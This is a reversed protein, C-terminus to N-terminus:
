RNIEPSTLPFTKDGRKTEVRFSAFQRGDLARLIRERLSDLDLPAREVFSFNAVGFVTQIRAGIEGQNAEGDFSLLIRGPLNRAEGLGLGHVASVLNRRLLDIFYPRNGKKLAVEHYRVLVSNM